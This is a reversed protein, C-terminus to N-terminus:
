TRYARVSFKAEQGAEYDVYAYGAEAPQNFTDTPLLGIPVTTLAPVAVTLEAVDLDLIKRPTQITITRAVAADSNSVLLFTRGDNKVKHGTAAGTVAVALAGARTITTVVIEARAM